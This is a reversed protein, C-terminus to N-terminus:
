ALLTQAWGVVTDTPVAAISANSHGLAGVNTVTAGPNAAQWTTLSGSQTTIADNSSYWLFVPVPCVLSVPDANAPLAAPYTVGWAADINPRLGLTNAVRAAQLGLLPICVIVAAVDAPHAWAYHLACTAGHSAGFLVADGQANIGAARTAAIAATIAADSATNGYTHTQTPTAVPHHYEVFRRHIGRVADLGGYGTGERGDGGAGHCYVVPNRTADGAPNPVWLHDPTGSAAPFRSAGLSSHRM